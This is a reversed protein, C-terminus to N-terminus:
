LHELVAAAIAQAEELVQSRVQVHVSVDGQKLVYLDTQGSREGWFAADGLGPLDTKEFTQMDRQFRYDDPPHLSVETYSSIGGVGSRYQYRCGKGDFGPDTPVPSGATEAKAAAAVIEPPILECVNLATLDRGPGHEVLSAEPQPDEPAPTNAEEGGSCAALCPILLVSAYLTKVVNIRAGATSTHCRTM